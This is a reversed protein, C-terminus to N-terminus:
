ARCQLLEIDRHFDQLRRITSADRIWLLCPESFPDFAGIVTIMAGLALTANKTMAQSEVSLGQWSLLVPFVASLLVPSVRAVMAAVHHQRASKVFRASTEHVDDM